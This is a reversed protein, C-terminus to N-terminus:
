EDARAGAGRWASVDDPTDLDLAGGPLDVAAEDGTLLAKGGHDGQLAALAPWDDRPWIAPIGNAGAYSSVVRTRLADFRAHLARLHAQDVAPQDCAILAVGHLMADRANGETIHDATDRLSAAIADKEADELAEIGLRISSAMGDSWEDNNAFLVPLESLLDRVEDAFAGVVVVVPAYGATLADHALRSLLAEGNADRILQKPEGLRRSEGAALLLGAIRTHPIGAPDTPGTSEHVNM